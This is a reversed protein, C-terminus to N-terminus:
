LTILDHETNETMKVRRGLSITLLMLAVLQTTFAKTSAVGIEPGARTLFSLDSERVLASEPVNCISLSAGFGRAKAERLAALTDATEGSQSLTVVLTGPQCVPTRYRFESAVEVQCPIGALGELWHRAVMGAHLSTGCALILISKVEDFIAAEDVGFIGPLVSNNLIRGELTDTIARPQEYIEKLMYHRYPGKDVADAQLESQVIERSVADGKANYIQLSKRTLKAVDGEELYIFRQTVPLLASIDSAIFHEGIGVGIVLPSGQRAVVMTEPEDISVVGLAYAGELLPLTQQVATLLDVGADLQQHVQHVIVETDTDSTFAYGAATQQARLPEHNEIIGNHVVAVRNKAIHPHANKETPAGHTAWRTHAIGLRGSIETEACATKLGAIKGIRRVRNLVMDKDVVVVGASDYGRYELRQLGELLIPIVDREAVAGVIGCM